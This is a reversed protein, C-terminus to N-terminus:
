LIHKLLINRSAHIDRDCTAGCICSFTESGGLKTNRVGCKGCTKSTYSENVIFVTKGQKNAKHILRQKFTFHSLMLMKETTKAGLVRTSKNAM